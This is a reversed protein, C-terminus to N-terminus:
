RAAIEGRPTERQIHPAASRRRSLLLRLCLARSVVLACLSPWAVYLWVRNLLFVVGLLAHGLTTQDSLALLSGVINTDFLAHSLGLDLVASAGGLTLLWFASRRM